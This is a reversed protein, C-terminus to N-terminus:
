RNNTLRQLANIPCESGQKAALEYLRLAEGKDQRLGGVGREYFDGLYAQGAAHGQDAALKTSARPKM